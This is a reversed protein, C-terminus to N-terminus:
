QTQAEEDRFMHYLAVAGGIAGIVGQLIASLNASLEAVGVHAGFFGAIAVLVTLVAKGAPQSLRRKLEKLLKMKKPKIQSQIRHRVQVAWNPAVIEALDLATGAIRGVDTKGQVTLKIKDWFSVDRHAKRYEELSDYKGKVMELKQEYTKGETFDDKGDTDKISDLEAKRINTDFNNM